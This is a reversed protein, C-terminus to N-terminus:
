VGFIRLYLGYFIMAAAIAFIMTMIVQRHWQARDGIHQAGSADGRLDAYPSHGQRIEELLGTASSPRDELKMELSSHIIRELNPEIAPLHQRIPELVAGQVRELASFPAQLTMAHYLTAGLAYFDTGPALQVEQGYQELPAYMPTLLRERKSREGLRYGVVSGFDILEVRERNLIINAPKIDRHLLGLGHLEQLVELVAILIGQAEINRLRDGRNIRAELTEGRIFEMAIYSSNHERWTEFIQTASPHRLLKLTEGEFDFRVQLREFETKDAPNPVILGGPLRQVLGDPFLEKIAVDRAMHQDRAKYTIGFGGRGLQELVEFRGQHLRTGPELEVPIPFVAGCNSCHSATEFNPARCMSCVDM